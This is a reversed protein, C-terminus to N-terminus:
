RNWFFFGKKNPHSSQARHLDAYVGGQRLLRRHPGQEVIKGHDLVVINDASEITSLRHAIVLSTRDQMLTELADQVYRESKNDLASTAEDLILIPADKYIARAIAIRQRQGGSLRLGSEGVVTELGLPLEHLFEDVHAAKIAAQLRAEDYQDLMGYMINRAITDDFLSTEQSVLSVHDRLDNLVLDNLNHGDLLIEGTQPKYFRLILSTITSKGSGSPGVLAIRDGPKIEFTLSDLVPQEDDDTYRFSVNNFQLHGHTETLAVTGSNQEPEADIISFVSNAATVGIQIKENVKALRKLPSMLMMCAMIYSVFSAASEPGERLHNLFIYLILALIPGVLLLTSPVIGASVKARKLNQRLNFNNANTFNEFEQEQGGYVKIVKHGVSAEKVTDAIGGMSDQIDKSTRRFRKNAYRIIGVLFPITLMFILTLRWDKYFLWAILGLSVVSDKFLISLTDTTAVATTEVDYILKSVNKSSSNKDFYRTPLRLMNQFVDQRIEYIVLRGVKAMTYNAIFGFIARAFVVCMLMIGSWRVFWQDGSLFGNKLVKEIFAAVSAEILGTLVMFGIAMLLLRAHRFLYRLLRVFVARADFASGDTRTVAPPNIPETM